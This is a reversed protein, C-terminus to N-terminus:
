SCAQQQAPEEPSVHQTLCELLATLQMGQVNLVNSQRTVVSLLQAFAQWGQFGKKLRLAGRSWGQLLLRCGKTFHQQM